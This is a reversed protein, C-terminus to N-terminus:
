WHCCTPARAPTSSVVLAVPLPAVLLVGFSGFVAVSKRDFKLEHQRWLHVLIAVAALVCFLFYYYDCLLVLLLTVATGVGLSV